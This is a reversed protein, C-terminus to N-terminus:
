LAADLLPKGSGVATHRATGSRARPGRQPDHLPPAGVAPQVEPPPVPPPAARPQRSRAPSSRHCGPGHYPKHETGLPRLAATRRPHHFRVFSHIDARGAALGTLHQRVAPAGGRRPRPQQANGDARTCAGAQYRLEALSSPILLRRPVARRPSARRVEARGRLEAPGRKRLAARAPMEAPSNARLGRLPDSALRRNVIAFQEWREPTGRERFARQFIQALEPRETPFLVARIPCRRQEDRPM